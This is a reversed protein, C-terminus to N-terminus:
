FIISKGHWTGRKWEFTVSLGFVVSGWPLAPAGGHCWLHGSGGGRATVRGGERAAHGSTDGWSVEGPLPPQASSTVRSTGSIRSSPSVRHWTPAPFAEAKHWRGTGLPAAKALAEGGRVCASCRRSRRPGKQRSPCSSGGSRDSHPASSFLSGPGTQGRQRPSPGTGRGAGLSPFPAVAGEHPPLAEPSSVM